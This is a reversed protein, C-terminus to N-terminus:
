GVDSHHDHAHGAPRAALAAVREDVVDVSVLGRDELLSELAEAWREYYHYGEGDPHEAEWRGVAEILRKQFDSWEFCRAEYLAITAGFVRSEWPADFVLEGNARPPAAPGSIALEVPLDSL